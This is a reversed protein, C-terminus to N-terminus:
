MIDEFFQWLFLESEGEHIDERGRREGKFEDGSLLTPEKPVHHARDSVLPVVSFMGIFMLLTVRPNAGIQM